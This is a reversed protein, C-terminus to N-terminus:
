IPLVYESYSTDTHKEYYRAFTTASNWGAARMITDIQAGKVMATSTSAARCSHVGFQEVDIGAKKMLSKIWRAITSKTVANFPPVTSIFLKDSQRLAHTREIYCSLTTVLCLKEDAPYWNIKMPHVHLGPKSQKVLESVVCTVADSEIQIDGLKLMHVTQCRQGTLLMFQLALKESIQLLTLDSNHPMRSIFTLVNQVQWIKNYRPLSPKNIFIGKMFRKVLPDNGLDRNDIIQYFSSLASKATNISSYGLGSQFMETLFELVSITSATFM